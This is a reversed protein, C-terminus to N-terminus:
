FEWKLLNGLEWTSWGALGAPSMPLFHISLPMQGPLPIWAPFTVSIMVLLFLFSWFPAPPDCGVGYLHHHDKPLLDSGFSARLLEVENEQEKTFCPTLTQTVRLLGRLGTSSHSWWLPEPGAWTGVPSSAWWPVPAWLSWPVRQGWSNGKKWGAAPWLGCEGMRIGGGSVLLLGPYLHVVWDEHEQQQVSQHVRHRPQQLYHKGSFLPACTM